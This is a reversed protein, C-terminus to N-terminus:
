PLAVFPGFTGWLGWIDWKRSAELQYNCLDAVVCHALSPFAPQAEEWIELGGHWLVAAGPSLSSPTKPEPNPLQAAPVSKAAGGSEASNSITGSLLM